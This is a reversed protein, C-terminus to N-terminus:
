DGQESAMIAQLAAKGVPGDIPEAKGDIEVTTFKEDVITATITHGNLKMEVVRAPKVWRTGHNPIPILSADSASVTSSVQIPALFRAETAVYDNICMTARREKFTIEVLKGTTAAAEMIKLVGSDFVTMTVDHDSISGVGNQMVGLSVDASNYDPCVIPTNHHIKKVQGVMKNDLSTYGCAECGSLGLLIVMLVHRM